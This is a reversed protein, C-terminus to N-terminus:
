RTEASRRTPSKADLEVQVALTVLALGPQEGSELPRVTLTMDHDDRVTVQRLAQLPLVSRTKEGVEALYAGFAALADGYEDGAGSSAVVLGLEDAIVASKAGGRGIEADVISQLADGSSGKVTLKPQSKSPARHFATARLRQAEQSLAEVERRNRELEREVGRLRANEERQRELELERARITELTLALEQRLGRTEADSAGAASLASLRASLSEMEASAAQRAQKGRERERDLEQALFAREDQTRALEKELDTVRQKAAALSALAGELQRGSPAPPPRSAPQSARTRLRSLELRAAELDRQYREREAQEAAADAAARRAEARERELEGALHELEPEQAAPAPTAAAARQRRFVSGAAFFLAAGAISLTWAWLLPNM